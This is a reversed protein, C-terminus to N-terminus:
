RHGQTKDVRLLFEPLDNNHVIFIENDFEIPIYDDFTGSFKDKAINILQPALNKNIFNHKNFCPSKHRQARLDEIKIDLGGAVNNFNQSNM